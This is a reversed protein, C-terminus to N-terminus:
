IVKAATNKDAYRQMSSLYQRQKVKGSRFIINTNYLM